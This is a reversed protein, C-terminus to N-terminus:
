IVQMIENTSWKEKLHGWRLAQKLFLGNKNEASGQTTSMNMLCCAGTDGFSSTLSVMKTVELPM